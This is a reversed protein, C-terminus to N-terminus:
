REIKRSILRVRLVPSGLWTPRADGVKQVRFLFIDTNLSEINAHM